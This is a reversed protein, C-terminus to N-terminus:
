SLYKYIDYAKFVKLIQEDNRCEQFSNNKKCLGIGQAGENLLYEEGLASKTPVKRIKRGNYLAMAFFWVDDAYKCNKTFFEENFVEQSFCHPPYLVGGVGTFFNLNSVGVENSNWKWDLYSVPKGNKLIIKHVRNACIDAEHKKHERLLNEVLDFSYIVDDDITIIAADPYEILAPILKKYSRIDEKYKRIELGRNMQRKLSEPIYDEDEDIWLIIKNPKISGQMISEIALYVTQLRKGYSTLSVIIDYDCYKESSVGSDSISFTKDRLYLANQEFLVCRREDELVKRTLLIKSIFKKIKQKLGVNM